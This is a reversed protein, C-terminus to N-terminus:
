IKQHIYRDAQEDSKGERPFKKEFDECLEPHADHQSGWGAPRGFSHTLGGDMLGLGNVPHQFVTRTRANLVARKSAEKLKRMRRIVKM